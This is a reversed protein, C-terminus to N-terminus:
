KQKVNIISKFGHQEKNNMVSASSPADVEKKEVKDSKTLGTVIFIM